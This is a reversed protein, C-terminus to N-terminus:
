MTVVVKKDIWKVDCGLGEFFRRVPYAVSDIDVLTVGEVVYGKTKFEKGNFFIPINEYAVEPKLSNIPPKSADPKNDNVEMLSVIRYVRTFYSRDRNYDVGEKVRAELTQGNGMYIAVHGSWKRNVFSGGWLIDGRQIASRAILKFRSDGEIGMRHTTVNKDTRKWLEIDIGAKQILSSCDSHGKEMRLPQSYKDGKYKMASAIFREVKVNDLKM